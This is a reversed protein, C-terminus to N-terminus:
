LETAELIQSIPLVYTLYTLLSGSYGKQGITVYWTVQHSPERDPEREASSALLVPHTLLLVTRLPADCDWISVRYEPLHKSDGYGLVNLKQMVEDRGHTFHTM